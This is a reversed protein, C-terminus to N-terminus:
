QVRARLAQHFRKYIAERDEVKVRSDGCHRGTAIRRLAQEDNIIDIAKSRPMLDYKEADDLVMETLDRLSSPIRDHCVQWEVRQHATIVLLAKYAEQAENQASAAFVTSTVSGFFHAGLALAKIM